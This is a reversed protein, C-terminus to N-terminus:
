GSISATPDESGSDPMLVELMCDRFAQVSRSCHYKHTALYFRTASAIRDPVLVRMRGEQVWHDAFHEPLYGVYSGSLILLANSEM